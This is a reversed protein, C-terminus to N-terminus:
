KKKGWLSDGSPTLGAYVITPERDQLEWDLERRICLQYTGITLIKTEEDYSWDGSLAGSAKGNAGLILTTSTSMKQYQYTLQIHEWSGILDSSVIETQPVAAYRQPMVVPWGDPTWEIARVHGMMVANSYPNNNVNAPLRGQSSYYWNGEDDKFVACHAIGVWGTHDNFKYPHTLLPYCDAGVTINRGDIGEYPGTISRSRCVRTNYAVSLEDYALFLYYYGTKENYMIEPGELAQWRNSARSDRRAIVTGYNPLATIDWPEGLKVLPKGTEPNIKLAVIGSHWSGYILYHEEEPTVIFSPDIANWKFYGSWNNQNPRAYDLGMDTSSSVVYGKDVWLNNAMNDTEMMGIFARETWSGDFNASINPLGTKIYNDIVVSYYMRYRNNSVKKVVPAWFGFSPNEIAPLDMRARMSNLSDKIWAPAAHMTAGRYEWNVLDKSRRHHFHGKGDHANGYSADTQFMYYYDGQKEVTPDHVNALNWQSRKDWGAIATYDDPHTPAIYATETNEDDIPPLPNDLIDADSSCGTAICAAILAWKSLTKM